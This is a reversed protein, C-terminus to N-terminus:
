LDENETGNKLQFQGKFNSQLKCQVEISIRENKITM